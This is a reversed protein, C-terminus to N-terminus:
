LLDGVTVPATKYFYLKLNKSMYRDTTIIEVLGKIVMLHFKELCTYHM